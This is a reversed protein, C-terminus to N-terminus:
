SSYRSSNDLSKISELTRRFAQEDPNYTCVLLSFGLALNDM